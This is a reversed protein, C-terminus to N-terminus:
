QSQPKLLLAATHEDDGEDVLFGQEPSGKPGNWRKESFSWKYEAVPTFVDDKKTGIQITPIKEKEPQFLRWKFQKPRWLIHLSPSMNELIPVVHLGTAEGAKYIMEITDIYDIVGDGNLDCLQGGLWNANNFFPIIMGDSRITIFHRSRSSVDEFDWVSRAFVVVLSTRNPQPCLVVEKIRGARKEKYGPKKPYYGRKLIKQLAKDRTQMSFLALVDPHWIAEMEKAFLSTAFALSTLLLALCFRNM